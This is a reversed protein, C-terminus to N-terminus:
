RLIFAAQQRDFEREAVGSTRALVDCAMGTENLFEAFAKIEHEEYGPYKWFEDFQIVTGNILRKRLEFLVTRTSSYLDCDVHLFGIPQTGTDHLFAPITDKFLGSYILTNDAFDIESTNVAFMGQDFGERWDEPLGTFVDFGYVPEPAIQEAILNLTRASGVGFECVLGPGRAEVSLGLLSRRSGKIYVGPARLMDELTQVNM